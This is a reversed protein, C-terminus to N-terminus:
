WCFHKAPYFSLILQELMDFLYERIERLHQAVAKMKERLRMLMILADYEEKGDSWTNHGTPTPSEPVDSLSEPHDNVGEPEERYDMQMQNLTWFEELWADSGPKHGVADRKQLKKHCETVDTAFTYVQLAFKDVLWSAYEKCERAQRDFKKSQGLEAVAKEIEAVETMASTISRNEVKRVETCVQLLAEIDADSHGVELGEIRATVEDLYVLSTTLKALLSSLRETPTPPGDGSDAVKNMEELRKLFDIYEDESRSM